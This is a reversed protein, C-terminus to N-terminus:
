RIIGEIFEFIEKRKKNEDYQQILMHYLQPLFKAYSPMSLHHLQFSELWDTKLACVAVIKEMYKTVAKKSNSRLLYDLVKFFDAYEINFLNNSYLQDLEKLLSNM